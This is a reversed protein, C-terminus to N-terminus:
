LSFCTEDGPIRRLAGREIWNAAEFISTLSDIKPKPKQLKVRLSIPLNIHEVTFHYLIEMHYRLDVGSATNFRAGLDRFIYGAAKVISEPKIEIYVRKPSKDFVDIIDDKFRESLDKLIEDRNM